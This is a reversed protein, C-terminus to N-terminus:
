HSVNRRSVRLAHLARALKASVVDLFWWEPILLGAIALMSVLTRLKPHDLEASVLVSYVSSVVVRNVVVLACTVACTVLLLGCGSRRSRNRLRPIM